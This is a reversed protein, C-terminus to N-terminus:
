EDDSGGNNKKTINKGTVYGYGSLLYFLNEHKNMKWNNINEDILRKCESFTVENYKLIKEQRLKNFIDNSLRVIKAKDIGGFNIKNLVPKNDKTRKYQERAVQGILNGLLFMASQQENYKMKEIYNKVEEKVSLTEVDMGIGEKICGMNELFKICMNGFIITNHIGTKKINFGEKEYYQINVTDLINKIIIEKHVPKKTFICNYLQLLKKYQQAESKNNIRIPTIYYFSELSVIRNYEENIVEKSLAYTKNAAVRIEEFISPNVDKILMQVKNGVKQMKYFVINLLYYKQEYDWDVDDITKIEKKLDDLSRFNAATNFSNTVKGSVYDLDDKCMAQGIIFHPILYVNFKSLRTNLNNNIYTEGAVMKNLCEQCMVMNKNYNSRKLQSAFIIQNTTFFKMKSKTLDAFLDEKGGCISCCYNDDKVKVSKKKGKTKKAVVVKKYEEYDCLPRDDILITYLGIENSKFDFEEKIYDDFIKIICKKFKEQVKKQDNEQNKIEEYVEKIDIDSLGYKKFNLSYRNKNKLNEDLDVYYENFIMKIKNNLEDGFNMDKLNCFTETLHYASSSSTALWQPSASGSASGVFMYQTTSDEKMEENADITLANENLKFNFKAIHQKKGKREIPREQILSSLIDSGNLSM